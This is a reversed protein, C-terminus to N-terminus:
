ILDKYDEAHTKLRTNYIYIHTHTLHLHISIHKHKHTQELYTMNRNTGHM